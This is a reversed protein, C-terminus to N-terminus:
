MVVLMWYFTSQKALATGVWKKLFLIDFFVWRGDSRKKWEYEFDNNLRYKDFEEIDNCLCRKSMAYACLRRLIIAELSQFEM